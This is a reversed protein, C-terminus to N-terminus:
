LKRSVFENIERWSLFFTIFVNRFIYNKKKERKKHSSLIIIITKM